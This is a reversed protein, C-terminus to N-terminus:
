DENAQLAARGAAEAGATKDKSFRLMEKKGAVLNQVRSKEEEASTKESGWLIDQM